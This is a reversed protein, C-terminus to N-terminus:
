ITRRLEAAPIELVDRYKAVTRRAVPFGREELIKCLETDNYPQKKDEQQVIERLCDMVDTNSLERGDKSTFTQTFLDKVPIIGFPTQVYKTSTVRSITSPDLDTYASVDRLTMPKLKKFDGSLFFDRQLVILTRITRMMTDDRQQLAEVLWQADTLKQSIFQRASKDKLGGLSEAADAQVKVSGGRSNPLSVLLDNGDHEVLYDPQITEVTHASSDSMGRLPRPNLSTIFDLADRLEESDIDLAQKVSEYQHAALAEMHNKVLLRPVDLNFDVAFHNIQILLCEKLNRAGIGLPEFTQLIRLADELEKEEVFLNQSFSIDDALNDLPTSMFGYDDLSDILYEILMRQRDTTLLFKAQEKIEERITVGQIAPSQWGDDDDYGAETKTMYDPTEDDMGGWISADNLDGSSNEDFDADFNEQHFDDAPESSPIPEHDINEELFPNEDMEKQIYQELELQNLHLFNLFQIQQPSIKLTQVQAQKQIQSQM